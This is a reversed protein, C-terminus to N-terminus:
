VCLPFFIDILYFCVIVFDGWTSEMSHQELCLKPSVTPHRTRTSIAQMFACSFQAHENSGAFFVGKCRITGKKKAGVDSCHVNCFLRMSGCTETFNVFAQLISWDLVEFLVLWLLDNFDLPLIQLLHLNPKHLTRTSQLGREYLCICCIHIINVTIHNPITTKHQIM